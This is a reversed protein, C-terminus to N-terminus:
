HGVTTYTYEIKAGAFYVDDGTGSPISVYLHYARDFLSITANAIGDDSATRRGTSAGTIVTKAMEGGSYDYPNEWRLSAHPDFAGGSDNDTWYTVLRTVTAGDPLYVPALASCGSIVGDCKGVTGMMTLIWNTPPPGQPHFASPPIRLFGPTVPRTIEEAGLFLEGFEESTRDYAQVYGRNASSNYALELSGGTGTAPWTNGRIRALDEVDLQAQPTTTGIGVMGDNAITMVADGIDPNNANAGSDQLFYFSGRNWTGTSRYAIAGKGRAPSVTGGDGETSFLLGVATDGIGWNPNDLKLPYSLGDVDDLLHLTNNPATIGIGVNGNDVISGTVLSSGNWKPVRNTTNSGVQPDAESLLGHDVGDAFGAPIGSLNGWALESDRAISSPIQGDSAQGSLETFSTTKSHHASADAEHTAMDSSTAAGVQAATVGHPNATNSVHASQDLAAAHLGDVTDANVASIAYGAMESEESRLAYAVSSFPQRPELVETNVIVELYRNEAAFLNADFSGALVSGTGLLINFVGDVLAVSSHTEGYLRTGGVLSDWIGVEINVPGAVPDGVSDLLLGQYTADEPPNAEATGTVVLLCAIALAWRGIRSGM